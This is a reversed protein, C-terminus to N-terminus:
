LSKRNQIARGVFGALAGGAYALVPGVLDGNEDAALFIIAFWAVTTILWISARLAFHAGRQRVDTLFAAAFGVVLSALIV